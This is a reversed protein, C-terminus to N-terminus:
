VRLDVAFSTIRAAMRPAPPAEPEPQPSEAPARDGASSQDPRRDFQAWGQGQRASGQQLDLSCSGYGADVLDKRLEPLSAQLAARGEETGGHIQVAIAGGRVEAIVSIPGLEAPHLHITMRHVGDGVKRLPILQMAVQAAPTPVTGPAAPAVLDPLPAM